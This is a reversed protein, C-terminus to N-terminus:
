TEKYVPMQLLYFGIIQLYDFMSHLKMDTREVHLISTSNSSNKKRIQDIRGWFQWIDTWIDSFKSSWIYLLLLVSERLIIRMEDQYLNM